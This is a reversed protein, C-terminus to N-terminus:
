ARVHRTAAGFVSKAASVLLPVESTRSQCYAEDFHCLAGWPQEQEDLIVSGCYSVVSSDQMGPTRPDTRGDGLDLSGGNGLLHSCYARALPVDDGVQTGPLWKDVLAVNRLTEGDFRYVGTFRHPTRLNLFRLAEVLGGQELRREFEELPGAEPSAGSLALDSM